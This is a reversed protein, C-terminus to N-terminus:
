IWPNQIKSITYGFKSPVFSTYTYWDTVLKNSSPPLSIPLFFENHVRQPALFRCDLVPRSDIQSSSSYGLPDKQPM